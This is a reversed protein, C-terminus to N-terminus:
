KSKIQQARETHIIIRCFTVDHIVHLFNEEPEQLTQAAAATERNQQQQRVTHKLTHPWCVWKRTQEDASSCIGVNGALLGSNGGFRQFLSSFIVDHWLFAYLLSSNCHKNSKNSSSSSINLQIPLSYKLSFVSYTSKM